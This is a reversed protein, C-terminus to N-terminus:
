TLNVKIIALVTAPETFIKVLDVFKQKDPNGTDLHLFKNDVESEESIKTRAIAKVVMQQIKVKEVENDTM